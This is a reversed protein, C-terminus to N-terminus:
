FLMLTLMLSASLVTIWGNYKPDAQLGPILAWQPTDSFAQAETSHTIPLVANCHRQLSCCPYYWQSVPTVETLHHLLMSRTFIVLSKCRHRRMGKRNAVVKPDYRSKFTIPHSLCPKEKKTTTIQMETRATFWFNRYKIAARVPLLLTPGKCSLIYQSTASINNIFTSLAVFVICFSLTTLFICISYFTRSTQSGSVLFYQKRRGDPRYLQLVLTSDSKRIVHSTLMSTHFGHTASTCIEGTQAKGSLVSILLDTMPLLLHILTDGTWLLNRVQYTWLEDLNALLGNEERQLPPRLLMSNWHESGSEMSVTASSGRFTRSRKYPAIRCITLVRLAKPAPPSRSSLPSTNPSRWRHCVATNDM